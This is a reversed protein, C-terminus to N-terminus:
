SWHCLCISDGLHLPLSRCQRSSLGQSPTFAIIAHMPGWRQMTTLMRRTKFSQVQVTLIQLFGHGAHGGRSDTGCPGHQPNLVFIGVRRDPSDEAGEAGAGKLALMRWRYLDTDQEASWLGAPSSCAERSHYSQCVAAHFSHMCLM